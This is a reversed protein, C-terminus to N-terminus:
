PVMSNFEILNKLAAKAQAATEYQQFEGITQIDRIGNEMPESDMRRITYLRPTAYDYRESTIFYACGNDAYKATSWLVRSDFFRMAGPSFFYGNHESRILREIGHYNRAM